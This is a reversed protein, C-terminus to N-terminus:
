FGMVLIRWTVSSLNSGSAVESPTTGAGVAGSSGYVRITQNGYDYGVQLYASGSTAIQEIGLIQNALMFTSATIPYGGAAGSPYAADGTITAVRVRLWGGGGKQALQAPQGFAAVPSATGSVVTVGLAM